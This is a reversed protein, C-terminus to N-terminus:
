EEFQVGYSQSTSGGGVTNGCGIQSYITGLAGGSVRWEGGIPLVVVGGGGQSNWNQQFLGAPSTAGAAPTTYTNVSSNPTIGPSSSQVALAAPTVATNTVRAWRTSQAVLSTDSGGWSIMKVSAIDGATLLTLVYNNLNTASAAVSAGVNAASFQAM